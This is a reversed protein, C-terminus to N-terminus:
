YFFLIKFVSNMLIVIIILVIIMIIVVFFCYALHFCFYFIFKLLTFIIIIQLFHVLFM